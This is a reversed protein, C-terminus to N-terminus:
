SEINIYLRDKCKPESHYINNFFISKHNATFVLLLKNLDATVEM